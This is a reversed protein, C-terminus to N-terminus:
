YFCGNQQHQLLKWSPSWEGSDTRRQNLRKKEEERALLHNAEGRHYSLMVCTFGITIVYAAEPLRRVIVDCGLARQQQQSPPPALTSGAFRTM